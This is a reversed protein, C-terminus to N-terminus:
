AIWSSSVIAGRQPRLNEIVGTIGAAISRLYIATLVLKFNAAATTPVIVKALTPINAAFTTETFLTLAASYADVATQM